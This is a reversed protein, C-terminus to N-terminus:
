FANLLLTGDRPRVMWALLTLAFDHSVGWELCLAQLAQPPPPPSTTRFTENGSSPGAQDTSAAAGLHDFVANDDSPNLGHTPDLVSRLRQMAAASALFPQLNGPFFHHSSARAMCAAVARMTTRVCAVCARTAAATECPRWAADHYDVHPPAAAAAEIPWYAARPPPPATCMREPDVHLNSGPGHLVAAGHVVGGGGPRQATSGLTGVCAGQQALTRGCHARAARAQSRADRLRAGARNAGLVVERTANFNALFRQLTLPRVWLDDDSYLVWEIRAAATASGSAFRPRRYFDWVAHDFKCCPGAAGWWASACPTTLMRASPGWAPCSWRRAYHLTGRGSDGSDGGSDSSSSSSNAGYGDVVADDGFGQFCGHKAAFAALTAGTAPADTVLTFHAVRPSWLAM